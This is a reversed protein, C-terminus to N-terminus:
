HRLKESANNPEAVRQQCKRYKPQQHLAEAQAAAHSRPDRSEGRKAEGEAPQRDRNRTVWMKLRQDRGEEQQEGHCLHKAM